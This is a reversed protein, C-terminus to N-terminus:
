GLVRLDLRSMKGGERAKPNIFRDIWVAKDKGGEMM